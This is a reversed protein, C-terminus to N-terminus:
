SKITNIFKLIHLAAREPKTYIFGHGSKPISVVNMAMLKALNNINEKDVIRDSDGSLMLIPKDKDILEHNFFSSSLMELDNLLLEDSFKRPMRWESHSPYACNAHFQSLVYATNSKMSQYMRQLVREKEFSSFTSCLILGDAKQILSLPIFHLGFSHALVINLNNESQFDNVENSAGFYGRDWSVFRIDEPFFIQLSQWCNADHAWGHFAIIEVKNKDM